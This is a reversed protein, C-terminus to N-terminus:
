TFVLFHGGQCEGTLKAKDDDMEMEGVGVKGHASAAFTERQGMIMISQLVLLQSGMTQHEGPGSCARDWCAATHGCPKRSRGRESHTKTPKHLPQWISVGYCCLTADRTFRHPIPESQLRGSGNYTHIRETNRLTLPYPSSVMRICWNRPFTTQKLCFFVVPALEPFPVVLAGLDSSVDDGLGAEEMSEEGQAPGYDECLGVGVHAAGPVGGPDEETTMAVCCDAPELLEFEEGNMESNKILM